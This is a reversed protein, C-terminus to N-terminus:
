RPVVATLGEYEVNLTRVLTWGLTQGPGPHARYVQIRAQTVIGREDSLPQLVIVHEGTGARREREGDFFLLPGADARADGQAQAPAPRDNQWRIAALKNGLEDASATLSQGDYAALLVTELVDRYVLLDETGTASPGTLAPRPEKFGVSEDVPSRHCFLVLPLPLDQINWATERDRYITNFNLSPGAMVVLNKLDTPAARRVVTRLFRRVREANAPLFLLQRQNRAAGLEPLIQGVIFAERPNPQYLDGVSYEIDQPSSQGRPYAKDFLDRFRDCLDVSYKDDDWKIDILSTSAPPLASSWLNDHAGLFDLLVTAMRANSFSCRFTREAYVDMLKPWSSDTTPPSNPTYHEIFRDISAGTLLLLPPPGRWQKRHRHLARALKLARGSTEGGLIALPPPSRKTLRTVWTESDSEGSLKYWRLWLRADEAGEVWIAVEPVEATLELFARSDDVFLRKAGPHASQWQALLAGVAAVIREWSEASTPPALFAIEQHGPPVPRYDAGTEFLGFSWLVLGGAGAALFTALIGPAIRKRWMRQVQLHLLGGGVQPCHERGEGDTDYGCPVVAQWLARSL